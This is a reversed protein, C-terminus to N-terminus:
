PDRSGEFSGVRGEYLSLTFFLDFNYCWSIIEGRLIVVSDSRKESREWRPLVREVCGTRDMRGMFLVRRATHRGVVAGGEEIWGDWDRRM